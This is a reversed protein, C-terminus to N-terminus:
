AEYPFWVNLVVNMFAAGGFWVMFSNFGSLVRVTRIKLNLILIIRVVVNLDVYHDRKKTNRSDLCAGCLLVDGM